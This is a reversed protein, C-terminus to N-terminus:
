SPFIRPRRTLCPIIATFKPLVFLSQNFIIREAPKLPKGRRKKNHFYLKLFHDNIFLLIISVVFVYNLLLFKNRKM